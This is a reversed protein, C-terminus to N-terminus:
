ETLITKFSQVNILHFKKKYLIIIIQHKNIKKM